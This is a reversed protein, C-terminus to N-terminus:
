TPSTIKCIADDLTDAIAFREALGSEHLRHLYPGPLGALMMRVATHADVHQQATLLAAVTSTDWSALGRLDLVLPSPPSAACAEDVADVLQEASRADLPGTIAVVTCGNLSQRGLRFLPDPEAPGFSFSVAASTGHPGSDLSLQDALQRIVWLGHGHDTRWQAPDRAQVGPDSTPPAGDDTVLCHVTQDSVWVRLRGHGSGHRVANAALEHVAIVLDGVRGQSVGAELAHAAAAARLAYLSDGDFIQDLIPPTGAGPLIIGGVGGPGRGPTMREPPPRSHSDDSM